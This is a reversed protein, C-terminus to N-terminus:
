ASQAVDECREAVDSPTDDENNEARIHAALLGITTEDWTEQCEVCLATGGRTGVDVRVRLSGRAACLPCTNALRRPPVEWGTVIAAMTHWRTVWRALAKQDLPGLECALGVLARLNAAITPREEDLWLQTQQSVETDIVLLANIADMRAAPTSAPVRHGASTSGSPEVAIELQDLLSVVRTVVAGHIPRGTEADLPAMDPTLGERHTRPQTLENVYDTIKELHTRYDKM